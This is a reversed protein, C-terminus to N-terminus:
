GKQRYIGVRDMRELSGVVSIRRLDTWKSGTECTLLQTAEKSSASQQVLANHATGRQLIMGPMTSHGRTYHLDCGLRTRHLLRVDLMGRRPRDCCLRHGALATAPHGLGGATRVRFSTAESTGAHRVSMLPGSGQM